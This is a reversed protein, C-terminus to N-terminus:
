EKVSTPGRLKWIGDVFRLAFQLAMLGFGVPVIIATV